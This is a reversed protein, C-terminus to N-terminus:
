FWARITAWLAGYDVDGFVLVLQALGAGFGLVAGLLILKWEDEQFCPRLLDQFQAPPMAEMRERLLREVV